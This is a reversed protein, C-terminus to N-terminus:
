KYFQYYTYLIILLFVLIWLFLLYPDQQMTLTAQNQQGLDPELGKSELDEPTTPSTSEDKFVDQLEPVFRAAVWEAFGKKWVLTDPTFRYDNKLQILDYPGAPQNEVFIFWEKELELNKLEKKKQFM